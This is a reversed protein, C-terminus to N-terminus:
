FELNYQVGHKRAHRKWFKKRYHLTREVCFTTDAGRAAAYQTALEIFFERQGWLRAFNACGNEISVKGFKLRNIDILSFHYRNEIYDFLINGPSYDRHLIGNDHLKATFRAFEAIIDRCSRIDANGFEYFNRSYTSQLSVFYSYHILAYTHEVIYAIPTPTEIGKNLLIDPYTFARKAKSARFFTYVVRNFLSPVAYRKVNIAQGNVIIVKILNRGTYVVKGEAEFRQPLQEIFHRLHKYKPNITITM